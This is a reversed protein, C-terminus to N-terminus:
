VLCGGFLAHMQEALRAHDIEDTNFGLEQEQQQQEPCGVLPKVSEWFESFDFDVAGGASADALSAFPDDLHNLADFSSSSDVDFSGMNSSAADDSLLAAFDFCTELDQPLQAESGDTPLCALVDVGGQGQGEADSSPVDLQQLLLFNVLADDDSASADVIGERHDQPSLAPSSPPPPSSPPLDVSWHPREKPTPTTTAHQEDSSERPPTTSRAEPYEVDSSAIPLSSPPFENDEFARALTTGDDDDDDDREDESSALASSSGRRRGDAPSPSRSGPTSWREARVQPTFLPSVCAPHTPTMTTTM